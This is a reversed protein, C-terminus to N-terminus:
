IEGCNVGKKVTIAKKVKGVKRLKKDLKKSDMKIAIIMHNYFASVLIMDVLM